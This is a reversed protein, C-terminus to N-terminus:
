LLEGLDIDGLWSDRGRRGGLFIGTRYIKNTPHIIDYGDGPDCYLPYDAENEMLYLRLANGYYESRTFFRQELKKMEEESVSRNGEGEKTHLGSNSFRYSLMRISDAQIWWKMAPLIYGDLLTQNLASVTSADIQTKIQRYLGTGIIEQIYIDQCSEIVPTLFGEDINEFMSTNEKVWQPTIFLTINM